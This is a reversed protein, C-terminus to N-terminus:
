VVFKVRLPIEIGRSLVIFPNDQARREEGSVVPIFISQNYNGKSAFAIRM